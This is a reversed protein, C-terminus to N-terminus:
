HRGSSRVDPSDSVDPVCRSAGGGTAWSPSRAATWAWSRSWTAACPPSWASEGAIWAYLGDLDHGVTVATRRSRRARPPTRRPRGCTRTSRRRSRSRPALPEGLHALVAEHLRSGLPAGDRPLWVVEVGTPTRSRGHVDGSEPVELFAAGRATPPCTRSSAACPRYPPRTPRGAAAVQATGPDFEIGGYRSARAAAGDHGAPRRGDGAGGLDLGSRDGRGRPAARLRRGAPHRRRHRPRRARHLHAHPRARVGPHELWTGFWSEDAGEFSPLSGADNPFVLKIRQDYLPGDVGFDALAPSGLEVRVYTPSLREVAVVEVEDLIMPLSHNTTMTM